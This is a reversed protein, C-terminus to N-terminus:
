GEQTQAEEQSSDTLDLSFSPLSFEKPVYSATRAMMLLTVATVEPAPDIKSPTPSVTPTSEDVKQPQPTINLPQSPPQFVIMQQQAPDTVSEEERSLGDYSHIEEESSSDEIINKRKQIADVINIILYERFCHM